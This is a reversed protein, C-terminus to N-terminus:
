YSSDLGTTRHQGRDVSLSFTVGLRPKQAQSFTVGRVTIPPSRPLYLKYSLTTQTGSTTQIYRDRPM